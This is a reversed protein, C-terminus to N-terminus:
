GVWHWRGSIGKTAKSGDPYEVVAIDAGYEHLNDKAVGKASQIKIFDAQFIVRAARYLTLRYM